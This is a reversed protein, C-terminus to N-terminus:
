WLMRSCDTLTSTWPSVATTTALFRTSAVIQPDRAVHGRFIVVGNASLFSVPPRRAGAGDGVLPRRTFASALFREGGVDHRVLIDIESTRAVTTLGGYLGSCAGDQATYVFM